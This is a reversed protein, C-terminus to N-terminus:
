FQYFSAWNVITIRSIFQCFLKSFENLKRSHRPPFGM